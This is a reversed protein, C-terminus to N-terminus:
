SLGQLNTTFFSKFSESTIILDPTLWLLNTTPWLLWYYTLLLDTIPWHYTLQLCYTPLYYSVIEHNFTLHTPPTSHHHYVTLERTLNNSNNYTSMPAQCSIELVKQLSENQIKAPECRWLNGSHNGYLHPFFHFQLWLHFSFPKKSPCSNFTNVREHWSTM